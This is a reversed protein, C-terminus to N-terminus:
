SNESDMFFLLFSANHIKGCWLFSCSFLMKFKGVGYFLLFLMEFKEVRYFFLFSSFSNESVMFFSFVTLLFMWVKKLGYFVPFFLCRSNKWVMFLLLYSSSNEEAWLFLLYVFDPIEPTWLFPFSSNQV